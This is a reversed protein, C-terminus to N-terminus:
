FSSEMEKWFFSCCGMMTLFKAPSTPGNLVQIMDCGLRTYSVSCLPPIHM